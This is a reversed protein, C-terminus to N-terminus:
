FTVEPAELDIFYSSQDKKPSAQRPPQSSKLGKRKSRAVKPDSKSKQTPTTSFKTKSSEGIEYDDSYKKNPKSLRKPQQESDAFCDIGTKLREM